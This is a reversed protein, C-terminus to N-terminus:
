TKNARFWQELMVLIWVMEGYYTPHRPLQEKRLTELFGSRVYGRAGLSGLSDFAFEQLGAHRTLWVGFPLGFGHKKKAIISDPLFDRLAEKFFWRLKQGKLKLSPNLRLSFDVLRDDLM